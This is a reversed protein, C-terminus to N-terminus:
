LRSGGLVKYLNVLNSLYAYKISTAGQQAAFLSRQSDLVILFNDLGNDYRTKSLEYAENTAGVLANQADLQLQYTRRAALQDAVERFAAQIVQEYQTAAMKENVEAVALSVKLKGRNFIPITLSPTFNWAYMAGSQLLGDLSDSALGFSGTLSISPYLAARAAGIDANASKLVHEAQRIDPRQLLLDSPLGAPLNEIVMVTDITEEQSLLDSVDGGALYVLANQDQAIQRSYQAIAVRANEVATAAQAVDLRTIAGVEFQRKVLRYTEEQAAHNDQALRLLKQDALLSLYANATEAILSIRASLLAEETALYTELASQNLSRVRGFFDLEYSVLAVNANLSTATYSSGTTSTDEPVGTRSATGNAAITPILATRQIRYAAQAQEINLAAIRLDRNNVLVREILNHLTKSQIYNEWSIEAAVDTSIDADDAQEPWTAAVPPTPQQYVPVMSCGAMVTLLLFATLNKYLM